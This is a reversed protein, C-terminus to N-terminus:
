KLGSDSVHFLSENLHNSMKQIVVCNQYLAAVVALTGNVWGADIDM